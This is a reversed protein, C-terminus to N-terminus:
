FRNQSDSLKSFVFVVYWEYDDEQCTCNVTNSAHEYDEGNYCMARQKRRKFTLRKGFM